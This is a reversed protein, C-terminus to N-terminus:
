KLLIMKNTQIFDNAQLRYFYVGSPLNSANWNLEYTGAPKVENVLTEIEEGLTNFIKLTVDASQPISYEIKTSPNFPNPYNQEVTFKTPANIEVEITTSYEFSGNFDIQKLRYNYSGANVNKDIYSYNALETITGRGNIFSVTNWNHENINKREVSVLM